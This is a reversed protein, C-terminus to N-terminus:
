LIIRENKYAPVEIICEERCINWNEVLEGYGYGV